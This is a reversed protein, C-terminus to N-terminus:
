TSRSSAATSRLEQLLTNAPTFAEWWPLFALGPRELAALLAKAQSKAAGSSGLFITIESAASRTVARTLVDAALPAVGGTVLDTMDM